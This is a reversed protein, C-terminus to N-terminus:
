SFTRLNMEKPSVSIETIKLLEESLFPINREPKIFPPVFHQTNSTIIKMM